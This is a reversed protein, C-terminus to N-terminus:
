FVLDGLIILKFPLWNKHKTQSQQQKPSKNIRSSLSSFTWAREWESERERWKGYLKKKITDNLSLPKTLINQSLVAGPLENFKPCSNKVNTPM